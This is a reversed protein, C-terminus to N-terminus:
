ALVMECDHLDREDYPVDMLTDLYCEGRLEFRDQKRHVICPTALGAFFCVRDDPCIAASGLGMNGMEDVFLTRYRCIHEALYGYHVAKDRSQNDIMMADFAASAYDSNSDQVLHLKAYELFYELIHDQPVVCEPRETSQVKGGMILTRAFRLVLDAPDRGCEVLDDYWQTFTPYSLYEEVPFQCVDLTQQYNVLLSLFMSQCWPDVAHQYQPDEDPDFWDLYPMCPQIPGGVIKGRVILTRFEPDIPIQFLRFESGLVGTDVDQSVMTLPRYRVRWDPVWSPIDKAIGSITLRAGNRTESLEHASPDVVGAYRLIELSQYHQIHQIAFKTYLEPVPCYGPSFWNRSSDIIGCLANIRDQNERCESFSLTQLLYPLSAGEREGPAERVMNRAHLLGFANRFPRQLWPTVIGAVMGQVVSIARFLQEGSVSQTGCYIRLNSALCAEQAIWRRGFWALSFLRRMRDRTSSGLALVTVLDSLIDEPVRCIGTRARIVQLCEEKSQDDTGVGLMIVDNLAQDSGAFAPGLWGIVQEAAAFICSMLSVQHEKEGCDRQNISFQDIWIHLCQKGAAGRLIHHLASSLSPSVEISGQNPTSYTPCGWAYSLAVFGPTDSLRHAALIGYWTNESAGPRLQLLRFSDHYQLPQYLLSETEISLNM